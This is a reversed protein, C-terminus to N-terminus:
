KNLRDHRQLLSQQYHAGQRTRMKLTFCAASVQSWLIAVTRDTQLHCSRNSSLARRFEQRVLAARFRVISKLNSSSSGRAYPAAGLGGM